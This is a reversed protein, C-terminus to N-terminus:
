CPRAAHGGSAGAALVLEELDLRNEAAGSHQWRRPQGTPTHRAELRQGPGSLAHSVAQRSQRPDQEQISKLSTKIM